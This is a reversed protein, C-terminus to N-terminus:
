YMSCARINGPYATLMGEINATLVGDSAAVVFCVIQSVNGTLFIPLDVSIHTQNARVTIENTLSEYCNRVQGLGFLVTCSKKDKTPNLFSCTIRPRSNDTDSTSAVDVFQNRSDVILTFTLEIM